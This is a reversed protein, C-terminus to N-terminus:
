TMRKANIFTQKVVEHLPLNLCQADISICGKSLIKTNKELVSDILLVYFNTSEADVTTLVKNLNLETLREHVTRRPNGNINDAKRKQLIQKFVEKIREWGIVVLM